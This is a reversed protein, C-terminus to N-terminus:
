PMGIEGRFQPLPHVKRVAVSIGSPGKTGLAFDGPLRGQDGFYSDMSLMHFLLEKGERYGTQGERALCHVESSM